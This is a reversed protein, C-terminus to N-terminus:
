YRLRQGRRKVIQRMRSPMSNIINDIIHIPFQWLTEVVRDCFELYTEHTINQTIADIRLKKDMLHFLNEIPNLDPSRAPIHMVVANLNSMQQKALKSNQSPDGDQVFFSNVM